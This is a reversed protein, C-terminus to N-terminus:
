VYRFSLMKFRVYSNRAILLTLSDLQASSLLEWTQGSDIM